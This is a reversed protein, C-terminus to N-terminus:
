GNFVNGADAGAFVESMGTLFHHKRCVVEFAPSTKGMPQFTDAGFGLPRCFCVGVPLLFEPACIFTLATASVEEQTGACDM